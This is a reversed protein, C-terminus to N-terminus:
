PKKPPKSTAFPDKTTAEAQTPLQAPEGGMIAMRLAEERTAARGATYIYEAKLRLKEMGKEDVNTGYIAGKTRAGAALLEADTYDDFYLNYEEREAETLSSSKPAPSARFAISSATKLDGGGQIFDVLDQNGQSKAIRLLSERLQNDQTIKQAKSITDAAGGLDGSIQQLKAVKNLDAPNSMDLQAVANTIQQQTSPQGGRLMGQFNGKMGRAARAGMAMRQQSPSLTAMPDIGGRPVGTLLGTIDTAM